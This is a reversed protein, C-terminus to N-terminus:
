HDVVKPYFVLSFLVCNVEYMCELLFIIDCLIPSPNEVTADCQVPVLLFAYQVDGHWYIYLFREVLKLVGSCASELVGWVLPVGRVISGCCWM